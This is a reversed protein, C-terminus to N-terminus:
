KRKEHKLEQLITAKLRRRIRTLRSEVAKETAGTHGGIERVSEGEFYKRELLERDEPPLEALSKELSKILHAETDTNAESVTLQQRHFFRELLSLYRKRKREEDVVSSRALVTLWSWFVEESHFRKVHRALRLLTLQLADRAAEERGGTLVLLYRLLRNFYLAYFQRYAAEDGAAMRGTLRAIDFPQGSADEM